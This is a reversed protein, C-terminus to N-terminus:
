LLRNIFILHIEFINIKKFLYIYINGAKTIKIKYGLEIGKVFDSNLSCDEVMSPVCSKAIYEVGDKNGIL